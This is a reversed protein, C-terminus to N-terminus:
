LIKKFEENLATDSIKYCLYYKDLIETIYFDVEIDLTKLDELSLLFDAFVKEKEESFAEVDKTCIYLVPIATAKPIRAYTFRIDYSKKLAIGSDILAKTILIIDSAAKLTTHDKKISKDNKIIYDFHSTYFRKVANIDAETYQPFRIKWDIYDLPLDSGATIGFEKRKNYWSHLYSTLKPYVGISNDLELIIKDENAKISLEYKEELEFLMNMLAADDTDVNLLSYISVDLADAIEQLRDQKPTRIDTEYKRMMDPRIGIKEALATQTLGRLKRAEKINEGITM